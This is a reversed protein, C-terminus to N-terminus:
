SKFRSKEPLCHRISSLPYIFSQKGLIVGPNLVSHCGLECHDGVLAGMKKLQTKLSREGLYTPFYEKPFHINVLSKDLKVNSTLAGAGFHVKYGLISDGVYNYHPLKVEDFLLSNKIESANGLVCAEGTLVYSRLYCNPRVETKHGLICPGQITAAPSIKVEKGVWIHPAIETYGEDRARTKVFDEFWEKLLPLATWAEAELAKFYSSFQTHELSFLTNVQMFQM